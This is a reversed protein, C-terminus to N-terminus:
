LVRSVLRLSRRSADGIKLDRLKRQQYETVRSVNDMLGIPDKFVLPNLKQLIYRIETGAQNFVAAYTDNIHGNGYPGFSRLDGYIQFKRCIGAFTEKESLQNSISSWAETKIM